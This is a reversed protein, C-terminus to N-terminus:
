LTFCRGIGPQGTVILSPSQFMPSHHKFHDRCHKYMQIYEKRVWLLSREDPIGSNLIHCEPGIDETAGGDFEAAGEDEDVTLLKNYEGQVWFKHHLQVLPDPEILKRWGDQYHSFVISDMTTIVVTSHFHFISDIYPHTPDSRPTPSISFNSLMEFPLKNCNNTFLRRIFLNLNSYSAMHYQCTVRMLLFLNM